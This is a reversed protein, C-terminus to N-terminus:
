GIPGGFAGRIPLGFVGKPTAGGVAAAQDDKVLVGHHSWYKQEGDEVVIGNPTWYKRAM